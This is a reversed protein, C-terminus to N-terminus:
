KYSISPIRLSINLLRLIQMVSFIVLVSSYESYKNDNDLQMIRSNIYEPDISGVSQLTAVVQKLNDLTSLYVQEAAGIFRGFALEGSNLKDNLLDRVNQYKLQIRKFQERGQIAYQEAGKINQCAALNDHLSQMILAEHKKLKKNLDDIYKGSLSDNRLFINVIANVSSIFFTGFTVFYLFPMNFLLGALGLPLGIAPPYITLWHTLGTRRVAKQIAKNSFDSVQPMGSERQM